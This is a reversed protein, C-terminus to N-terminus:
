YSMEELQLVVELLEVIGGFYCWCSPAVYVFAHAQPPCIMDPGHCFEVM